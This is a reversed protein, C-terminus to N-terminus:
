DNIQGRARMLGEFRIGGYIVFAGLGLFAASKLMLGTDYEFFRSLILVVLLVVGAWYTRRSFSVMGCWMLSVGLVIEAANAFVVVWYKNQWPLVCALLMLAVAGWFGFVLPRLAPREIAERASLSWLAIGAGFIAGILLVTAAVPAGPDAWISDIVVEQASEHCSLLYAWFALVVGGLIIAIRNAEDLPRKVFHFTGFGALALAAGIGALLAPRIEGLANGADMSASVAFGALVLFFVVASRNMYAFPLGALLLLAPYLTLTEEFSEFRGCYGIFSAVVAIVANPDSRLVYAVVAAGVAWATFGDYFHIDVHFIQDMLGINAGFILTGLTVLAHGLRPRTKKVQWLVYGSIHAALMAAFIMAVKAPVPISEWHAAVFSIVGGAVLLSGVLYITAILLGTSERGLESLAYRKDIAQAQEASVLGEAQWAELESKLKKRFYVSAM